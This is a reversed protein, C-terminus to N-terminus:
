ALSREVVWRQPMAALYSTRKRRAIQMRAGLLQELAIAFPQGQYGDDALIHQVQQLEAACCGLVLLASNRDTVDAITVVVAHPFGQTDVAIHHKIGLARKGADYGKANASDMNKVSPADVVLFSTSSTHGQKTRARGSCKKLLGNWLARTM